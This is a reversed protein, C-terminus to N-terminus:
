LVRFGMYEYEKAFDLLSQKQKQSLNLTYKVGKDSFDKQINQFSHQKFFHEFRQSISFPVFFSILELKEYPLLKAIKIAENCASSYARVLGGAGLKIGGFYRVILVGCGVLEAGRLVNLVPPGSTGKPEGDDSQNEVIQEYDNLIRYAWVIHAAKPHKQKLEEHLTKFSDYPVLFALFMSKKVEYEAKFIEEVNQM